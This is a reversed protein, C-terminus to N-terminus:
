RSGFYFFLLPSAAVAALLNWLHAGSDRAAAVISRVLHEPFSDARHERAHAGRALAVTTRYTAAYSACDLCEALHRRLRSERVRHLDGDFLPMLDEVVERCTLM